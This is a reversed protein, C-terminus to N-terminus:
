YIDALHIVLQSPLVSWCLSAPSRMLWNGREKLFPFCAPFTPSFQLATFWSVINECMRYVHHLEYYMVM